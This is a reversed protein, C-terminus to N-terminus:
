IFLIIVVIFALCVGLYLWTGSLFRPVMIKLLSSYMTGEAPASVLSPFPYGAEDLFYMITGVVMYANFAGVVTGLLVDQLKDRALKGRASGSLTPGAYGFLVIIIVFISRALFQRGLNDPSTFVGGYGLRQFIDMLALALIVSFSVIVEKAWGRLAGVFAFFAVFVVFVASLSIM